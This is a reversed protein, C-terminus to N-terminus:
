PLKGAGENRAQEILRELREFEEDSLKDGSVAMLAAVTREVSDDFFTEMVHKLASFRATRRTVRPTYIYRTGEKKHKLHGKEELIRILARVASYSPPDALAACVDHVTAQGRQFIIDMIQRERRSLDDLTKKM